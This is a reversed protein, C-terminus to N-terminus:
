LAAKREKCHDKGLVYPINKLQVEKRAIHNKDTKYYDCCIMVSTTTKAKM